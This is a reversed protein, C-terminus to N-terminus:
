NHSAVSELYADITEPKFGTVITEGLIFGPTSHMGLKMIEDQQLQTQQDAEECTLLTTVENNLIEALAEQPNESCFIHNAKRRADPTDASFFVIRRIKTSQSKRTIYEDSKKCYFCDPNLIEVIPIGDEDGLALGKSSDFDELRKKTRSQELSEGTLSVGDKNFMEGFILIDKEPYYYIAKGGFIVEYIGPIASEGFHEVNTITSFTQKLQDYWPTTRLGEPNSFAQLCLGCYVFVFWKKM